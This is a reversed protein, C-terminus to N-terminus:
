KSRGTEFYIPHAVSQVDLTGNADLDFAEIETERSPLWSGPVYLTGQPGIEWARGLPRGAIWVFGKSMETTNLYTDRGPQDLSPRRLTTKFFCPGFCPTQRYKMAEPHLMPLSYVEWDQLENGDLLVASVIGKRDNRLAATYNIRGSNEVLIELESEGAAAPLMVTTQKLHRDMTGIRQHDVFIVAYDHVGDIRLASAGHPRLRKEYLIYGYAQDVDEMAPPTKAYLPPPLNEWLSASAVWPEIPYRVADEVKPPEPLQTGTSKAIISRLAFYKPTLEGRENIAADYDYSTTDAQYETATGSAGNMWGFSTGGEIMYLNFSYGRDMMWQLDKEQQEAPRHQHVDGWHDFWGDWYEGAMLAGKPRAAALAAFSSETKGPAFNVAIPLDPLSGKSFYPPNDATYLYGDGMGNAALASRIAQMYAHDEGFAGYENEVQVALVPGGQSLMFPHVVRGLRSFWANVAALYAPDSGRIEMTRDKLLWWPFGGFDWEACVYPGPRLIVYLGEEKAERLYEGLDNQGAFDFVGPSPEHLDWFVYTTLTNLGMAKMKKMRDRWDARAVRPYHMEGARVQFPAGHLLFQGDPGALLGEAPLLQPASSPVQASGAPLWALLLAPVFLLALVFTARTIM